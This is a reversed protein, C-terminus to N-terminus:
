TLTALDAPDFPRLDALRGSRVKAAWQPESILARGIAVLDFEHRDLRELLNNIDATAIPGPPAAELFTGSLGVSGVTITPCGMLKKTWGALNLNSGPFEPEWYRRQSCHFIDVGADRLPRLWAELADPTEANRAGYDPIKWQSLRFILTLAGGVRAKIAKVIEAAFRARAGIDAGGFQDSRRNTMQWFFQDILYGHAGHLEVAECGLRLAECSAAAYAEITDAIDKDSMAIGREVGDGFTASPSERPHEPLTPDRAPSAGVHWLQPAIAAGEGHVAEVVKAWSAMAKEGHFDPVSADRKAAARDIGAGETIILGAGGAARRRYYDAAIQPPVGNPSAYRTMPAMVIRNPLRLGGGEFPQFLPDFGM